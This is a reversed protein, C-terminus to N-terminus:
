PTDKLTLPLGAAVLTVRACTAAVGQNLLGLSDVFRRVERGLPVVGLGIENSVLVVPGPAQEIAVLLMAVLRSLEGALPVNPEVNEASAPMLLNTLWLTLCDVVVLTDPRSHAALAEALRLPEEVTQMGPLREARDQRHRAIRARMEDDWPTATALMVGRHLPSAALWAAALLEARRSKGSKQGGLVLESRAVSLPATM